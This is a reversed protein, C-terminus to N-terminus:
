RFTFVYTNTDGATCANQAAMADYAGGLAKVVTGNVSIIDVARNLVTALTPCASNSVTPFTVAFSDGAVPNSAQAVTVQSGGAGLQHQVTATAGAGAITLNQARGRGANAFTATAAATASLNTYPTTSGAVAAGARLVNAITVVDKATPEVRGEILLERVFPTGMATLIGIIAIVFLLELLTFGKQVINGAMAPWATLAKSTTKMHVKM